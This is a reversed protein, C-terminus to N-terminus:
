FFSFNGARKRMRRRRQLKRGGPKHIQQQKQGTSTALLLKRSKFAKLSM